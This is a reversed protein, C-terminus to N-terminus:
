LLVSVRLSGTQLIIALVQVATDKPLTPLPAALRALPAIVGVMGRAVGHM